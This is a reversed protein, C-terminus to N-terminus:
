STSVETSAGVWEYRGLGRYNRVRAPWREPQESVDVGDDTVTLIPPRQGQAMWYRAERIMPDRTSPYVHALDIRVGGWEIWTAEGM